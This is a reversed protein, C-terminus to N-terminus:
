SSGYSFDPSYYTSLEIGTHYISDKLIYGDYKNHMQM